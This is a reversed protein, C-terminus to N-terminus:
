CISALLGIEFYSRIDGYLMIYHLACYDLFPFITYYYFIHLFKRIARM